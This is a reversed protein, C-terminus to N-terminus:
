ATEAQEDIKQLIERGGELVTLDDGIKSEKWRRRIAAFDSADAAPLQDPDEYSFPLLGHRLRGAKM